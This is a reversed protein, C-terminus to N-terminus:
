IMYKNHLNTKQALFEMFFSVLFAFLLLRNQEIKTINKIKQGRSSLFYCPSGRNKFRSKLYKGIIFLESCCVGNVKQFVNLWFPCKRDLVSFTFMAYLRVSM